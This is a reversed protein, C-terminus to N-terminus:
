EELRFPVEVVVKDRDFLFASRIMLATQNHLLHHWWRVCVFQPIVITILETSEDEDLMGIYGVLPRLLTRYPSDVVVLPVNPMWKHWREHVKLTEDPDTEIHVAITKKAGLSRAYHAAVLTGRHVGSVLVVVTHNAPDVDSETQYNDLSLSKAVNQYHKKIQFFLWVLAMMVVIVIWAGQFFRTVVFVITVTATVFAGLASLAMGSRWYPAYRLVSQRMTVEEGPKMRSMKRWRVMMAVQALTFSLFVGITYLPILASTNAQFVLTFLIALQALVVTGWWFVLRHGRLNFQHPLFGDASQHAAMHPFRTFSTNAAMILILVTTIIMAYYLLPNNQFITRALQSIITEQESPLANTLRALITVGVFLIMLIISMALLTTAANRSRPDRFTTIRSSVTKMGTLAASGASFARLILFMTLTQTTAIPVVVNDVQSLSGQTWQWFGYGILFMMMGIFLYTPIALWKISGHFSRLNIGMLLLIAVVSILVRYPIIGPFASALHEVGASISVAVTLVYDMLLAAGAVQATKVGLNDSTVTYSSGGEPYAFIIQRYSVTVILLLVCIAVAIPVSLSLAAVGALLLIQLIEQTAYATSSLADASFVGLGVSRGVIQQQTQETRLPKGVILRRLFSEEQEQTLRVHNLPCHPADSDQYEIRTVGSPPEPQDFVYEINSFSEQSVEKDDM